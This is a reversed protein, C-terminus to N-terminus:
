ITPIVQAGQWANPAGGIYRVEQYNFDPSPTASRYWKAFAGDSPRFALEAWGAQSAALLLATGILTRLHNSRTNRIMKEQTQRM